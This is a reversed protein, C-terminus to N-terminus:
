GFCGRGDPQRSRKLSQPPVGFPVPLQGVAEDVSKLGSIAHRHVGVQMALLTGVPVGVVPVPAGAVLKPTWGELRFPISENLM